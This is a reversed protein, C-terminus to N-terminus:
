KTPTAWRRSALYGLLDNKAYLIKRGPGVSAAIEGRLRADRLQHQNLSLLRASEAETYALKENPLAARAADLRCITQEIVNRILPELAAPDIVLSLAATGDSSM